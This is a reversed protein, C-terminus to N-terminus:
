FVLIWHFTDSNNKENSLNFVELIGYSGHITYKGVNVMFILWIYTFIGYMSGIPINIKPDNWQKTRWTCLEGSRRHRPMHRKSRCLGTRFFKLVAISIYIYIYLVWPTGLIASFAFSSFMVWTKKQHTTNKQKPTYSTYNYQKPCNFSPILNNFSITQCIYNIHFSTTSPLFVARPIYIVNLFIAQQYHFHFLKGPAPNKKWLELTWHINRGTQPVLWYRKWPCSQNIRSGLSPM